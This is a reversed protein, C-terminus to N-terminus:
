FVPYGNLGLIQFVEYTINLTAVVFNFHQMFILRSFVYIQLILEPVCNEELYFIDIRLKDVHSISRSNSKFKVQVFRTQQYQFHFGVKVPKMPSFWVVFVLTVFFPVRFALQVLCRYGAADWLLADCFCCYFRNSLFSRSNKLYKRRKLSHSRPSIVYRAFTLHASHLDLQLCAVYSCYCGRWARDAGAQDIHEIWRVAIELSISCLRHQM